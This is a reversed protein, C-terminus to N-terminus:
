RTADRMTVFEEAVTPHIGITSDFDAKTAGAKIAVALGQIIEGADDGMMHAGVVKDSAKDVVLKLFTKTKNGSLTHKLHTFRSTYVAIDAFRERAEEESFGVTALNPQSFIATPIFSYDLVTNDGKFLRKALNMGEALAVPTLEMGGTVDGVAYISPEATQFGENVAIYGKDNLTVKTNELGLGELLPKRGTAYLVKDTLLSEGSELTLLYQGDQEAIATVNENFRLKVGKNTMEEALQERIETDFGRLFLDRRYIQEVEVGLGHLIGAFETAIYGGGVVVAHKPLTDLYFLENSSIALECGPIDPIFPWGGVAILINKATYKNGDVEVTNADVIRAHGNILDAGANNLLNGYIGNLREIEKTKNDRLRPWDLDSVSSDWGFGQADSFDERYHAAYSFLKKPVCGVNVCTGGLYRSEAIAVKAGFSASMRAARVGGSGAGIVFLDYITESM